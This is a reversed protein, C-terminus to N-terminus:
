AISHQLLGLTWQTNDGDTFVFAVTHVADASGTTEKEADATPTRSATLPANSLAALNKNYDSAHVWLGAENCTSVYENEPGWGFCAGVGSTRGLLAQAYCPIAYCIM